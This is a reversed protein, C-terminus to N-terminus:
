YEEPVIGWVKSENFYATVQKWEKFGQSDTNFSYDDLQSFSDNWSQKLIRNQIEITEGPKLVGSDEKFSIELIRKNSNPITIINGEVNQRGKTAWDCM